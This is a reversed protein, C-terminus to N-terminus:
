DGILFKIPLITCLKKKIGKITAGNLFKMARVIRMAEKDLRVDVGKKIAIAEVKGNQDIILQVQVTGETEDALADRPYVIRKSVFISLNKEGTALKPAIYGASDNDSFSYSNIRKFDLYTATDAQCLNDSYDLKFDYDLAESSGYLNTYLWKGIPEKDRYSERSITEKNKLRVIEITTEGESGKTVTKAYLAKRESTKKGLYSNEYYTTEVSQAFSVSVLLYFVFILIISRM